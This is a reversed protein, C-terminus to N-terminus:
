HLLYYSDRTRNIYEGWFVLPRYMIFTLFMNYIEEICVVKLLYIYNISTEFLISSLIATLIEFIITGAFVMLSLAYKNEKSFTNKLFGACIGILFYLLLFLGITKGFAIDVFMGYVVGSLGGVFEGSVIGLACVLVIGANPIIGYLSFENLFNSQLFLILIM